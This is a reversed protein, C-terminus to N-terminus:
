GPVQEPSIGDEGCSNPVVATTGFCNTTPVNYQPPLEVSGLNIVHWRDRSMITDREGPMARPPGENALVLIARPQAGFKWKSSEYKSAFGRGNSICELARWSLAVKGGERFCSRPLDLIVFDPTCHEHEEAWIKAAFQMDGNNGAVHLCEYEDDLWAAFQSKGENGDPGVVWFIKRRNTNALMLELTKLQWSNLESLKRSLPVVPVLIKRKWQIGGPKRSEDKLCYNAHHIHTFKELKTWHLKPLKPFQKPFYKRARIKTYWGIYGQIHPTGEEGIEEQLAFKIDFGQLWSVFNRVDEIKYNNWTFGWHKQPPVRKKPKVTNDALSVKPVTPKLSKKKPVKPKRSKPM